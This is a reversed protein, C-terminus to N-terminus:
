ELRYQMSFAILQNREMSEPPLPFPQADNLAQRVARQLIARGGEISLKIPGGKDNLCFKVKLKGEISRRRAAGPYFKYSEIHALLRKIYDLREKERRELQRQALTKEDDGQVVTEAILQEKLENAITEDVLKRDPQDPVEPKIDAQIEPPKEEQQQLPVLADAVVKKVIKQSQKEVPIAHSIHKVVPELYKVLQININRSSLEHQALSPEFNFDTKWQLFAFGHLVASFMIGIFIRSSSTM